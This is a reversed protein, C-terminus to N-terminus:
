RRRPWGQAVAPSMASPDIAAIGELLAQVTAADNIGRRYFDAPPLPILARLGALAERGAAIDGLRGYSAAMLAYAGPAMGSQLAEKALAVAEEFRGQEFRGIGMQLRQAHQFPGIPDLRMSMEVAEVARDGQGVRNRVVGCILWAWSCGPNLVVAREVLVLANDAMDRDLHALALAANTLMMADEDHTKLAALALAVGARQNADPDDSWGYIDLEAHCSAAWALATSNNPDLLIAREFLALAQQMGERSYTRVHAAAQLVLDYSHLDHTSRTSARRVEAMEVRPEIVAAVSLAVKDQLAFIDELTGEFRQAWIQVGGVADILEVGIRVRGGAKRVSGEVAYGVGLERAADKAPLGKGKLSLTSSSAIVLISKIRSLAEAIEVVMGDVFYDQQPDGCLNAFPLVAISPRDDLSVKRLAPAGDEDDPDSGAALQELGAVLQRWGLATPAGNWGSLDACQIQNFPLPPQVGDLSAQVLTRATLAVEAEARVWHSRVADGSWLVLVAKAGRLREEIVDSYARHAPLRDDRWVEYGQARLVEEIRRAEHETSRAYSIFIELMAAMAGATTAPAPPRRRLNSM